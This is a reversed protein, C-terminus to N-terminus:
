FKTKPPTQKIINEQIKGAVRHFHGRKLYFQGIKTLFQNRNGLTYYLTIICFKAM